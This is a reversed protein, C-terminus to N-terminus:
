NNKLKPRETQGQRAESWLAGVRGGSYSPDPAHIVLGLKNQNKKKQSLIESVEERLQRRDM